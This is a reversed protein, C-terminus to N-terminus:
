KYNHTLLTATNLLKLDNSLKNWIFSGMFSTSKQSLNVKRLPIELAIHSRTKYIKRSLIFLEFVHQEVRKRTPLSCKNLEYM